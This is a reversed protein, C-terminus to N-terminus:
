KANAGKTIKMILFNIIIIFAGSIIFIPQLIYNGIVGYILYALPTILKVIVTVVSFVRGLVEVPINSQVYTFLTVNFISVFFGKIIACVCMYIPNKIITFLFFIIGIAIISYTVTKTSFIMKKNKIIYVTAIIAGVGEFTVFYFYLNSGYDNLYTIIFIPLLVYQSALFFNTLSTQIIVILLIKNTYIYKLGEIINKLIQAKTNKYEKEYTIFMTLLASLIYSMGNTVAVGFMGVWNFIIGAFIPGGIRIISELNELWANAKSIYDKEIIEPLIAKFTPRFFSTSVGLLFSILVIYIINLYNFFIYYALVFCLSSSFLDSFVLLNKKNFKDCLAGSILSMSVLGITFASLIYSADESRGTLLTIWWVIATEYIITGISSVVDSSLLLRFKKM